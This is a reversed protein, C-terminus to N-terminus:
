IDEMHLFKPIRVYYRSIISKTLAKHHQFSLQKRKSKINISNECLKCLFFANM